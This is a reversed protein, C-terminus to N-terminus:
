RRQATPLVHSNISGLGDRPMEAQVRRRVRLLRAAISYGEDVSFLMSHNPALLEAGALAPVTQAVQSMTTSQGFADVVAIDFAISLIPLPTGNRVIISYPLIPQFTPLDSAPILSRILEEFDPSSPTIVAVGGPISSELPAVTITPQGRSIGVAGVLLVICRWSM